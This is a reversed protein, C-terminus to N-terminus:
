QDISVDSFNEYLGLATTNLGKVKKNYISFWDIYVIPFTPLDTMAIQQMQKYIQRRKEPDNEVMGAELLRDMEPNSYSSGNSYAVGPQIAKSWYLRQIGIVPDAINSVSYTNLDFDNDTWVRRVYTPGDQARLTLTIGIKALNQRLIEATQRFTDGSPSYDITASFRKGDAGAPYGAEDLLQAAKKLDFEYQPVDNTYFDSQKITVPGGKAATAFNHWINKVIFDKDIAHAIAQRVRVDQWQPKRLNFEFYNVSTNYEWGDTSVELTPNKGLRAVDSLPVVYQAGYQVEGSELAAARSASDSIFRIILQDLYPKGKDWYNENRQLLLHSGRVFEGFKFPGTGVPKTNAPNRMPDGDKYIHKPMIPSEAGALARMLYPTPAALKFVATHADPTEVSQLNAFTGKGRPHLKKLIEMFTFQVDESTFPKGDHWTVGDRLKFEINLGDDSVKWATALRPILNFNKDYTVLGDFLKSSVVYVPSASNLASVLISPEPDLSMTMVGGQKPQSVAPTAMPALALAAFPILASRAFVRRTLKSKMLDFSTM